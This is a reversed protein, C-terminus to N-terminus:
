LLKELAQVLVRRLAEVDTAEEAAKLLRDRNVLRVAEPM